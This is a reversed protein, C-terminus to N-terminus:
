LYVCNVPVLEVDGFYHKADLVLATLVRESLFAVLRRQYSDLSGIEEVSVRFVDFLIEFLVDCVRSYMKNQAFFMNCGHIYDIHNLQNFTEQKLIYNPNSCLDAIIDIGYRGHSGIYQEITSLPAFHYQPKGPPFYITNDKLSLNVIEKDVWFRRYQCTGVFEEQANKWIWYSATLDGFAYNLYSINKGTDDLVYGEDTLKAKVKSDLYCANAMLKKQYQYTRRPHKNGFCVCYIALLENINM